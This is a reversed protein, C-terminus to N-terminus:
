ISPILVTYQICRAFRECGTVNFRRSDSRARLLSYIESKINLFGSTLSM